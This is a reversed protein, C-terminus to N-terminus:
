AAESRAAILSLRKGTVDYRTPWIKQPERGLFEAIVKEAKASVRAHLALSMTQRALGHSKGLQSLTVGAKRVAAKIAEPPMDSPTM